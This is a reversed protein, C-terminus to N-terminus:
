DCTGPKLCIVQRMEVFKVMVKIDNDQELQKKKEGQKSGYSHWVSPSTNMYNFKGVVFGLLCREVELMRYIYVIQQYLNQERQSYWCARRKKVTECLNCKLEMM